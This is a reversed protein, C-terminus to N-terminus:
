VDSMGFASVKTSRQFIFTFFLLITRGLLNCFLLEPACRGVDDTVAGFALTGTALDVRVRLGCDAGSVWLELRRRCAADDAITAAAADAAVESAVMVRRRRSKPVVRVGVDAVAV